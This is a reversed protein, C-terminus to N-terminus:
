NTENNERKNKEMLDDFVPFHRWRFAFMEFSGLWEEGEPTEVIEREEEHESDEVDVVVKGGDVEAGEEGADQYVPGDLGAQGAQWSLYQRHTLQGEQQSDERNTKGAEPEKGGEEVSHRPVHCLERVWGVVMEVPRVPPIKLSIWFSM